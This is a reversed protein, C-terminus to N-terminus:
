KRVPTHVWEFTYWTGVVRVAFRTVRAGLCTRDREIETHTAVSRRINKSRTGRVRFKTTLRSSLTTESHTHTHSHYAAFLARKRHFFFFFVFHSCRYLRANQLGKAGWFLPFVFCILLRATTHTHEINMTLISVCAGHVLTPVNTSLAPTEIAKACSTLWVSRNFHSRSDNSM